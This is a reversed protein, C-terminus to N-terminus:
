SPVATKTRAETHVAVTSLLPVEQGCNQCLWYLENQRVHRLLSGSCCPCNNTKISV